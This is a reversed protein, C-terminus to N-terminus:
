KRRNKQDLLTLFINVYDNQLTQCSYREEVTKRGAPGIRKRLEEDEILYCLQNYWETDTLALFGNVGNEIIDKNMGVAAIVAPVGLGMYMLGKMGCKGRTWENDPLPMIGIDFLAITEVETEASWAVGRIDLEPNYYTPDGYVFFEIKNGYKDKLKKLVPIITEFHEITTHSGSWGIVVRGKNKGAQKDPIRYYDLNITSPFIKVNSNFQCAYAALYSNGAIVIDCLTLLDNIKEPRKLWQLSRNAESVAPLWIADDFDFIISAGRLRFMKEFFASGTYFAERYVFVIDYNGVRLIDRIRRVLGKIFIILKYIINSSLYLM